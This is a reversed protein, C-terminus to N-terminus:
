KLIFFGGCKTRSTKQQTEYEEPLSCRNSIKIKEGHMNKSNM